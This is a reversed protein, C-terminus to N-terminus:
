YPATNLLGWAEVACCFATFFWMMAAILLVCLARHDPGRETRQLALLRTRRRGDRPTKHTCIRVVPAAQMAVPRLLRILWLSNRVKERMPFAPSASSTTIRVETFSVARLVSFHQFLM